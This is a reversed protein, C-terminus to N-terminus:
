IIRLKLAGHMRDITETGRPMHIERVQYSEPTHLPILEILYSYTSPPLSLDYPM